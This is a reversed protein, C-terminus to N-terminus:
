THSPRVVEFSVRTRLSPKAFIMALSKGKLPQFSADGARFAAKLERARDLVSLLQDKSLDNVHLFNPVRSASPPPGTSAVRWLSFPDTRRRFSCVAENRTSRSWPPPPLVSPPPPIPPASQELSEATSKCRAGHSPERRLLRRLRRPSAVTHAPAIPVAM